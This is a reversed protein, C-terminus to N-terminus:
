FSVISNDKAWQMLAPTTPSKTKRLIAKRHNHVTHISINLNESIEHSKLGHCILVLIQIEREGLIDNVTNDLQVLQAVDESVITKQEFVIQQFSSVLSEETTSKLLYGDAGMSMLSEYYKQDSFQTLIIVKTSPWKQKIEKICQIGNMNPMSIDLLVVDITVHTLHKIALLGDSAQYIEKIYPLPKFVSELASRIMPHDDVIM